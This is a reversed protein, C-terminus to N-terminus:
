IGLEDGNGDVLVLRELLRRLNEGVRVRQCRDFGTEGLERAVLGDRELTKTVLEGLAPGSALAHGPDDERPARTVIQEREVRRQDVGHFFGEARELAIRDGPVRQAPPQSTQV